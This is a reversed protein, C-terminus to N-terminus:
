AGVFRDATGAVDRNWCVMLPPAPAIGMGEEALPVRGAIWVPCSAMGRFPVVHFHFKEVGAGKWRQGLLAQTKQGDGGDEVSPLEHLHRAGEADGSLRDVVPHLFVPVAARFCERGPGLAPGAGRM